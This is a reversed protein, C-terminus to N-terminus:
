ATPEGHESYETDCVPCTWVAEDAPWKEGGACGPCDYPPDDPREAYHEDAAIMGADLPHRRTM